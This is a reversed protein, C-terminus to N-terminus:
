GAGVVRVPSGIGANLAADGRGANVAIELLDMSNILALVDGEPVEGYTRRVPGVSRGACQVDLRELGGGGAPGLMEAPINSVLNGFHDVYIVEGVVEDPAIRPEPVELLKYSQPQPGLSGPPRGKLIQGATPAFVDRGHFTASVGSSGGGRPSPV